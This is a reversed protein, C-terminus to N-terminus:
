LLKLIKRECYIRAHQNNDTVTVPVLRRSELTEQKEYCLSWSGGTVAPTPYGLVLCSQDQRDEHQLYGVPRCGGKAMDEESCDLLTMNQNYVKIMYALDMGQNEREYCKVAWGGDNAMAFTSSLVMMVIMLIKM